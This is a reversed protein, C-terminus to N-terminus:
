RLWPRPRKGGVAALARVTAFDLRGALLERAVDRLLAPGLKPTFDSPLDAGWQWLSGRELASYQTPHNDDFVDGDAYHEHEHGDGDRWYDFLQSGLLHRGIGWAHKWGGHKLVQHGQGLEDVDLVEFACHLFDDRFGTAVVFAHHDSPEKGRDTRMFALAPKGNSLCQVDTPILGLHRMYWAAAEAFRTSQVVCHGLRIVAAAQLPPRQTENVRVNEFPTNLSLPQTRTPLPSVSEVGHAVEVLFGHPDRLRVCEGGGPRDLAVVPSGTQQALRGLDDRSGALFGTGVFAAREARRAIYVYPLTGAGRFLRDEGTDHTLVLGFDTLFRQTKDLDPKDFIVWAIQDARIIPEPRRLPISGPSPTENKM